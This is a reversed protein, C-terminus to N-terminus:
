EALLRKHFFRIYISSRWVIVLFMQSILFRLFNTCGTRQLLDSVRYINDFMKVKCNKFYQMTFDKQVQLDLKKSGRRM